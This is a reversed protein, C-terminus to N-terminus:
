FNTKKALDLEGHHRHVSFGGKKSQIVIEHIKNMTLANCVVKFLTLLVAEV